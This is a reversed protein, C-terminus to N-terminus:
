RPGSASADQCPLFWIGARARQCAPGQLDVFHIGRELLGDGPEGSLAGRHLREQPPEDVLVGEGAVHGPHVRHGRRHGPFEVRAADRHLADRAAREAVEEGEGGGSGSGEGEEDAMRVGDERRAGELAVPHVALPREARADEVHLAPEHHPDERQPRQVLRVQEVPHRHAADHDAVLLHARGGRLRGGDGPHPARGHREPEFGTAPAVEDDGPALADGREIRPGVAHRCVGAAIVLLPPVGDPRERAEHVPDLPEGVVPAAHGHAHPPELPARGSVGHGRLRAALHVHPKEDRGVGLGDERADRLRGELRCDGPRADLHQAGAAPRRQHAGVGRRRQGRLVPTALPLGAQARTLRRGGAAPGVRRDGARRSNRRNSPRPGRPAPNWVCSSYM